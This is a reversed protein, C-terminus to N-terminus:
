RREDPVVHADCWEIGGLASKTCGKSACRFGLHCLSFRNRIENLVHLEDRDIKRGNRKVLLMGHVKSLLDMADEYRLKYDSAM